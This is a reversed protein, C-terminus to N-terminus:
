HLTLSVQYRVPISETTLSLKRRGLIDCVDFM